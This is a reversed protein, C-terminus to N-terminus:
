IRLLRSFMYEANSASISQTSKEMACANLTGCINDANRRNIITAVFLNLDFLSSANVASNKTTWITIAITKKEPNRVNLVM